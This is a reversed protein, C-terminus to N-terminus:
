NEPKKGYAIVWYSTYPFGRTTSQKQMEEILRDKYREVIDASLGIQWFAWVTDVGQRIREPDLYTVRHIGYIRADQFGVHNFMDYVEELTLSFYERVTIFGPTMSFAPDEQELRIFIAFIRKWSKHGNFRLAVQGTPKLVRYMEALAQQKNPFWHFSGSSIVVDFMADPFELHEADMTQFICNNYGQREANARAKKIMGPSIDIGYFTGTQDCQKMLEFSAIGTGCAVDLVVSNVPVQLDDLFLHTFRTMSQGAREDYFRSSYDYGKEMKTKYDISHAM